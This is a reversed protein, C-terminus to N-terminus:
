ESENVYRGTDVTDLLIRTSFWGILLLLNPHRLLWLEFVFRLVARSGRSVGGKKLDLSIVETERNKLGGSALFSLLMGGFDSPM